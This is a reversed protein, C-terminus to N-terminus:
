SSARGDEAKTSEEEGLSSVGIESGETAKNWFSEEEVRDIEGGGGEVIVLVGLSDIELTGTKDIPCSTLGRKISQGSDPVGTKRSLARIMPSLFEQRESSSLILLREVM